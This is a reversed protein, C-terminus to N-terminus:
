GHAHEVGAADAAPVAVQVFCHEGPHPLQLGHGHLYALLQGLEAATDGGGALDPLVLLFEAEVHGAVALGHGGPHGLRQAVQLLGVFGAVLPPLDVPYAVVEATETFDPGQGLCPFQNGLDLSVDVDEVGAQVGLQDGDALPAVLPPIGHVAQALHGVLQGVLDIQNKLVHPM